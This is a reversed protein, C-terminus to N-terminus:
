QDYPCDEENICEGAAYGIMIHLANQICRAVCSSKASSNDIMTIHMETRVAHPSPRQMAGHRTIRIPQIRPCACRAVRPLAQMRADKPQAQNQYGFPQQQYAQQNPAAQAQAYAQQNPAAQAQAYAQQNSAPQQQYAQDYAQRQSQPQDGQARASHSGHHGNSSLPRRWVSDRKRAPNSRRSGLALAHDAAFFAYGVVLFVAAAM